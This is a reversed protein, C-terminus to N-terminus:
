QILYEFNVVVKIKKFLDNTNTGYYAETTSGSVLSEDRDSISFLGQNAKKLKGLGVNSQLAFEEAAKKGNQTAEALMAPKINNLGTFLYQVAPKYYDQTAYVVVGMKLLEDKMSSVKKVLDVNISRVQISNEIIYRYSSKDEGYERALKDIVNLDQQFIETPKIGKSLLFNNIKNKNETNNNSGAHIDNTTIRTKITWVALNAKVEREAFGKVTILYDDKKFNGIANGIFWGCVSLGAAICLSPLFKVNKM